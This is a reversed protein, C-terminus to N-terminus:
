RATQAGTVTYRIGNRLIYIVGNQLVKQAKPASSADVSGIGEGETSKYFYVNDIFLDKGAPAAEMFKFQFINNWEIGKGDFASLPIDVSTWANATLAVQYVGEHGPSIPTLQVSTMETTYFDVHLSEMEAANVSPTLEWGIYNMNSNYWAHDGAELEGMISLTSQGWNGINIAPNNALGDCFVPVAEMNTFDPAPAPAQTALTSVIIEIPEAANGNGDSAVVKFTYETNPRLNPISIQVEAGSAGGGQAVVLEGNIVNYNIVGMDDTASLSLVVNFFSQSAVGAQVNTPPNNDVVAASRYFYANGIWFTLNSANDIKVQYVNSWNTIATYQTMDIDISNWQGGVLNVTVGQEPGGWIPVIRLSANDAIWFDFHLKEMQLCNLNFDVMGFYGSAPVIYKKGFETDAATTGSGWEGFGCNANYTPSYIAKVLAADWVPAPAATTPADYHIDTTAAVQINNESENGAADIATITFTYVTQATLGDITIKGDAPMCKKDIGNAADVAHYRVVEHNDTAEVAIVVSSWNKSDLIASVMVPAETDGSDTWEQGFVQFEFIKMGWETAAKTSWFRVYRVKTKEELQASLYDTRGNVGAAGSYTYATTWATNDSSFDIHYAQSCAGEFHITILDINYYAGLDVVFWADFTRSEEDGATGNSASGQYVSGDNGDVAFFADTGSPAFDSQAVVKNDSSINTSLALNSGMYGFVHVEASRVDGSYAVITAPGVKAPIYKGESVVGADAPTIEYLIDVPMAKGNQDKAATTLAVGESVKAIASAASFEITTLTSVGPLLVQFEYFSQGWQTARKTGHYKIYQATIKNELEIMQWGASALNAETYLPSWNEGDNSYALDFEKCYAGEWNIKITNFIRQQGMNLTWTEDDTSASEWRTGNDGDIALAANGSSATASSGNAALAFNVDYVEAPDAFAIMSAFIFVCLPFIKRM